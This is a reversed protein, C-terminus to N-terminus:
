PTPARAGWFVDRVGNGRLTDDGAQGIIRDMKPSGILTDSEKTGVCFEPVPSCTKTVAWAIGSVLVMALAMSALLLVSTRMGIGKITAPRFFPTLGGGRHAGAM